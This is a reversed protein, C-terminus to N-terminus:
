IESNQNASGRYEELRFSSPM